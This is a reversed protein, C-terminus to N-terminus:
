RQDSPLHSGSETLPRLRGGLYHPPKRPTQFAGAPRPPARPIQTTSHRADQGNKLFPPGRLHAQLHPHDEVSRGGVSIIAKLSGIPSLTNGNVARPKVDSPLLNRVDENLHALFDIGAASVDAGSDPLVEITAQGNLAQIHVTLTPAPDTHDLTMINPTRVRPAGVQRPGTIHLSNAQPPQKKNYGVSPNSPKPNQLCVSHFHGVKGCNSCTAKFAPCSM